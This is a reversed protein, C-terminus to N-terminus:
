AARPTERTDESAVVLSQSQVGGSATLAQRAVRFNLSACYLPWFNAELVDGGLGNRSLKGIASWGPHITWRRIALRQSGAAFTAVTAM